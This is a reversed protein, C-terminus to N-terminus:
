QGGEIKIVEGFPIEKASCSHKTLLWIWNYSFDRDKPFSTYGDTFAILLRTEQLNEEIFAPIYEHTTGGGGKMEQALKIIDESNETTLTFTNQMEADGVLVEIKVNPFSAIIAVIEGLAQRLDEESMSGSTDIHFAIQVSERKIRPLFTGVSVSRKHPFDYAFDFPIQAVIYQYLKERWNIKSELIDEIRRLLGAPMTGRQKALQSAEATIRKWDQEGVMQPMEGGITGNGNGEGDEKNKEIDEKYIHNDFGKKGGFSDGKNDSKGSGSSSNGSGDGQMSVGRKMPNKQALKYLEEYIEESSKENIHEIKVGNVEISHHYRDPIWGGAPLRFSEDQLADNVVLDNAINFIRVDRTGRRQLHALALHIAEHYLVGMLEEESLKEFFERYWYCNGNADVGMTKNDPPFMKGEKDEIFKMHYVIYSVFPSRKNLQIKARTIRDEASLNNMDALGM